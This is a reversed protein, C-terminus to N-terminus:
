GGAQLARSKILENLRTKPITEIYRGFAQPNDTL